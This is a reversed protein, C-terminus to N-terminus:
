NLRQEVSALFWEHIRADDTALEPHFTLGLINKWTVMVPERVGDPGSVAAMTRIEPGVAAIRPARIFVAEYPATNKKDMPGFDVDIKQNFSITV